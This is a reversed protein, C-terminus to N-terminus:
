GKDNIQWAIELCKKHCKLSMDYEKLANYCQGMLSYGNIKAQMQNLEDAVRIMIKIDEIAANYRDFYM